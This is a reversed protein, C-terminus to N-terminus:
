LWRRVRRCYAEFEEGFTATLMAEERRIVQRDIAWVFLPVALWPTLSGLWVAVGALAVTLGLYIPNRSVRYPGGTLLKESERFPIITTRHFLLYLACGSDVALGAVFLGAGVWRWGGQLLVVGPLYRDLAVMLGIALLLYTPPYMRLRRRTSGSAKM